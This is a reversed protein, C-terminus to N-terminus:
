PNIPMGVISNYFAIIGYIHVRYGSEESETRYIGEIHPSGNLAGPFKLRGGLAANAAESARRNLEDISYEEYPLLFNSYTDGSPTKAIVEFSERNSAEELYEATFQRTNSVLQLEDFGVKLGIDEGREPLICILYQHFEDGVTKKYHLFVPTFGEFFVDFPVTVVGQWAGYRAKTLNFYSDVWFGDRTPYYPHDDYGEDWSDPDGEEMDLHLDFSKLYGISLTLMANTTWGFPPSTGYVGPSPHSGTLLVNEEDQEWVDTDLLVDVDRLLGQSVSRGTVPTDPDVKVPSIATLVPDFEDTEPDLRGNGNYDYRSYTKEILPADTRSGINYPTPHPPSVAQNFVLGDFNLDRKFHAPPGDLYDAEDNVQLWADRFVRFDKMNVVGDGRRGDPTHIADPDESFDMLEQRLNGDLTGDDVDVLARQLDHKGRLLDIAMAAAYGDVLNARDGSEVEHTTQDSMLLSKIEHITLSPDLSWLFSALGAVLPASFSTGSWNLGYLTTTPGKLVTVHTGGASVSDGLGSRDYNSSPRPERSEAVNEVTIFQPVISNLFLRCAINAPPSGHRADVGLQNENGAACVILYNTNAIRGNLREFSRAWFEGAADAWRLESDTPSSTYDIGISYNIVKPPTQSSLLAAMQQLDVSTWSLSSSTRFPIGRVRNPLPTVGQIGRTDNLAAIVGLVAIGHDYDDQVLASNFAPVLVVNTELDRHPNFAFELVVVDHSGLAAKQRHGYDLWNWLQPIRSMEFANNGGQGLGMATEEWTWKLPPRQTGASHAQVTSEEIIEPRNLGINLSVADFLGSDRLRDVLADLNDVTGISDLRLVGLDMIPVTGALSLGETALLENFQEVTTSEGFTVLVHRLSIPFNAGMGTEAEAELPMGMDPLHEVVPDTGPANLVPLPEPNPPVPEYAIQFAAQAWEPNVEVLYTATDGDFSVPPFPGAPQWDLLNTTVLISFNQNSPTTLTLHLQGPSIEQLGRIEIEDGDGGPQAPSSSTGLFLCLACILFPAPIRSSCCRM